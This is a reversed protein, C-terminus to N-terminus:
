PNPPGAGPLASRETARARLDTERLMKLLVEDGIRNEQRLAFLARREADFAAVPAPAANPGNITRTHADAMAREAGEEERQEEAEDGLAAARVAVRLTLGQLLVSGLIVFAAVVLILDREAFPRGDPLTSPLSLAVILGIVSRTSAWAMVGAAATRTTGIQGGNRARLAAALRPRLTSALALAYQAALIVALLAAASGIAQWVPWDKLGRLAEPLARGSLFFLAASLILSVEEWFATAAIRAESSSRPAGTRPDVRVASVVLAATMIAVVGSLGLARAALASLYPTGLSIAIEVPAPETRERLWTIARGVVAGAAAGGLLAYATEGLAAAPTPPGKALAQLALSFVSLATIRTVMERAKLADAIARPVHPRAKAEHFLRTDFLAAVVGLCLAGTWGLRPLLAHATAAVALITTLSLAAGVLVGSVLTFRLLHFSVRVTSAYLVPPLFLGLMLQPDVRMPPLGPLLAVAVGSGFLALSDPLRLLRALALLPGIAALLLAVFELESMCGM